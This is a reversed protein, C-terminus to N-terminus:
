GAPALTGDPDGVRVQPILEAAHRRVVDLAKRTSRDADNGLMAAERSFTDMAKAMESPDMSARAGQWAGLAASSQGLASGMAKEIADYGKVIANRDGFCGRGGVGRTRCKDLEEVTLRGGTCLAFAKPDAGAQMACEVAVSSKADPNLEGLLKPGLACVGLSWYNPEQGSEMNRRACAVLNFVNPDVPTQALCVPYADWTAGYRAYCNRVQDLNAKEAGALNNAMLCLATENKSGSSTACQYALKQRSGLSADLVCSYFKSESDGASALCSSATAASVILPDANYIGEAFLNGPLRAPSPEHRGAGVDQFGSSFSTLAAVAQPRPALFQNGFAAHFYCRGRRTVRGTEDIVILAGARTIWFDANPVSSRAAMLHIGSPDSMAEMRMPGTLQNDPVDLYTNRAHRGKSYHSIVEVINIEVNAVGDDCYGPNTDFQAMVKQANAPGISTAAVCIALLLAKLNTM